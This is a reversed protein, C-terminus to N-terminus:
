RGMTRAARRRQDIMGLRVASSVSRQRGRWISDIMADSVVDRGGGTIIRGGRDVWILWFECLKTGSTVARAVATM